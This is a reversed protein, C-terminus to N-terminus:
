AHPERRMPWAPPSDKVRIQGVVRFGHREYLARNRSSSAELHAPLRERDCIELVPRLLAAGFGKGQWPPAVGIVPLYYHPDHPHVRETATLFSMLRPMDRGAFRIMAPLMLLQRLFGMQWTGPPLWFSGGAYRDTTYCQGHTLWVKRMFLGFGETLRRLRRDDDPFVWSLLPDDYFAQAVAEVIHSVEHEAVPRV